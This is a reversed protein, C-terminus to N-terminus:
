VGLGSMINCRSLREGGSINAKNWRSMTAAASEELIGERGDTKEKKGTRREYFRDKNTKRRRKEPIQDTALGNIKSEM